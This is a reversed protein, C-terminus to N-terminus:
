GGTLPIFIEIIDKDEIIDVLKMPRGERSFIISSSLDGDMAIAEHFPLKPYISILQQLLERLDIPGEVKLMVEKEALREFPGHFRLLM